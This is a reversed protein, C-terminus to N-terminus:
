KKKKKKKTAVQIMMVEKKKRKNDNETLNREPQEIELETIWSNRCITNAQEVLRQESVWFMGKNLWLSLMHKRYGRVKPESLLYCEM